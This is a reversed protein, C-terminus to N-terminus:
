SNGVRAGKRSHMLFCRATKPGIGHIAELDDLSCTHLNINSNALAYFTKAKNNYCGIGHIRLQEPLGSILEDGSLDIDRIIRFPSPNKVYLSSFPRWANLLNDLCKAATKGNKGAACVWFLIHEELANYSLYYNTINTPDIM